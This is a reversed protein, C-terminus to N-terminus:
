DRKKTKVSSSKRVKSLGYVSIFIVFLLFVIINTTPDNIKPIADQFAKLLVVLVVFIVGKISVHKM